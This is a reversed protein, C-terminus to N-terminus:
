KGFPVKDSVVIKNIDVDYISIPGQSLLIKWKWTWYRWVNYSRALKIHLFLNKVKIINWKKSLDANQLLFPKVKALNVLLVIIILIAFTWFLLIMLITIGDNIKFIGTTVYIANKQNVQKILMLKKLFTFERM